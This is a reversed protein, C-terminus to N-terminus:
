CLGEMRFYGGVGIFNRQEIEGFSLGSIVQHCFLLQDLLYTINNSVLGKLYGVLDALFQQLAQELEGAAERLDQDGSAGVIGFSLLGGLTLEDLQELYQFILVRM